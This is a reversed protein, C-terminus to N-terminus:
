YVLKIRKPDSKIDILRFVNILKMQFNAWDELISSTDCFNTNQHYYKTSCFVAWGRSTKGPKWHMCNNCTTVKRNIIEIHFHQQLRLNAFTEIIWAPIQFDFVDLRFAITKLKINWNKPIIDFLQHQNTHLGIKHEAKAKVLSFM